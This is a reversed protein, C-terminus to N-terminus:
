GEREKYEKRGTGADLIKCRQYIKCINICSLLNFCNRRGSGAMECSNTTKNLVGEWGRGGGGVVM